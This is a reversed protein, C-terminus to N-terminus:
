RETDPWRYVEQLRGQGFGTNEGAEHKKTKKKGDRDSPLGGTGCLWDVNFSGGHETGLIM